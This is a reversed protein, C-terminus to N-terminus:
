KSKDDVIELLGTRIRSPKRVNKMVLFTVGKYSQIYLDGCRCVTHFVGKMRYHVNDVKKFPIESIHKNLFSKQELDVIRQDTVIFVNMYW